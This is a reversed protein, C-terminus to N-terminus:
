WIACTQGREISRVDAILWRATRASRSRLARDQRRTFIGFADGAGARRTTSRRALAVLKLDEALGCSPAQGNVIFAFDLRGVENQRAERRAREHARTPAQRLLRGDGIDDKATSARARSSRTPPAIAGRGPGALCVLALAAHAVRSMGRASDGGAETRLWAAGCAKALERVRLIYSQRETVSIVGRADLLNFVHSAKICQDYAPLAMRHRAGERGDPAGADLYSRCAAEADAFQRFLM